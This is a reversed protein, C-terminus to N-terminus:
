NAHYTFKISNTPDTGGNSVPNSLGDVATDIITDPKVGVTFTWTAPTPDANNAADVAYVSFTYSGDALGTYTKPSTCTAAASPTPGTLQCVFHDVGVNDTGTFTFKISNTPDTGGNSVANNLGDVASTISTDPPTIDVGTANECNVATDGESPNFDTVDDVGHGCDFHDAGPGGTMEDKGEEGILTDDGPGGNLTDKGEGGNLIDNGNQGNLTDQGNCGFLQDNGDGGNITHSQTGDYIIDDGSTPANVPDPSPDNCSTGGSIVTLSFSASPQNSGAAPEAFAQPLFDLKPLDPLRVNADTHHMIIEKHVKNANSFNYSLAPGVVLSSSILLISLFYAIKTAIM